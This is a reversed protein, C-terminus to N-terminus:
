PYTCSVFPATPVTQISVGFPVELQPAHMTSICVDHVDSVVELNLPKSQSPPFTKVLTNPYYRFDPDRPANLGGGSALMYPTVVM